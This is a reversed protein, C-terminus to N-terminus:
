YGIIIEAVTPKLAKVSADGSTYESTAVVAGRAEATSKPDPRLSASMKCGGALSALAGGQWDSVSGINDKDFGKLKFPKGNLKELAALQLGIRLGKPATWTSHGNIVILYTGTRA